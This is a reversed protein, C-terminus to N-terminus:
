LANDIYVMEVPVSLLMTLGVGGFELVLSSLFAM